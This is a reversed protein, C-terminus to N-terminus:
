RRLSSNSATPVAGGAELTSLAEELVRARGADQVEQWQEDQSAYSLPRGDRQSMQSHESVPRQARLSNRLFGALLLRSNRTQGYAPPPPIAIINDEVDGTGHGSQALSAAYTPLSPRHWPAIGMSGNSNRRHTPLLEGPHLYAYREARLRFLRREFFIFQGILAVAFLVHFFIISNGIQVGTGNQANPDNSKSNNARQNIQYVTLIWGAVTGGILLGQMTTLLLTTLRIGGYTPINEGRVTLFKIISRKGNSHTSSSDHPADPNQSTPEATAAPTLPVDTHAENADRDAPHRAPLVMISRSDEDSGREFDRNHLDERYGIEGQKYPLPGAQPRSDDVSTSATGATSSTTATWAM